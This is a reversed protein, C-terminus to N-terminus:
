PSWARTYAIARKQDAIITKSALFLHYAAWFGTPALILMAMRLSSADVAHGAAFWVSLMGVLKPAVILNFVNAVLLSVAIFMSRM